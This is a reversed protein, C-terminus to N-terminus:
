DSEKEFLYPADDLPAEDIFYEQDYEEALVDRIRLAEKFDSHISLLYVTGDSDKQLIGYLMKKDLNIM